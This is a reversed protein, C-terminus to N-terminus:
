MQMMRLFFVILKVSNDLLFMKAVNIIRKALLAIPVDTTKMFGIFQDVM